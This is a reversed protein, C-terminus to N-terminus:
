RADDGAQSSGPHSSGAGLLTAPGLFPITEVLNASSPLGVEPALWCVRSMPQGQRFQAGASIMPMPLFVVGAQLGHGGGLM